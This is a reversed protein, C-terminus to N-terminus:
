VTLDNDPKIDVPNQLTREFVTAMTVIIISIFTALIGIAVFGAPDDDKNHFITIYLVAMVISVSLIIACYKIIRLAKVSSPSSLKNQRIYGFLKFAQHLAVFFAISVVYGYIIFPDAYISFLDLNVARGETLPFWIMIGLATIGIIIIVVQLFITANKKM